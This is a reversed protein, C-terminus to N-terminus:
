WRYLNCNLRTAAAFALYSCVLADVAILQTIAETFSSSSELRTLTTKLSNGWLHLWSKISARSSDTALPASSLARMADPALFHAMATRDCEAIWSSHVVYVSLAAEGEAFDSVISLADVANEDLAADLESARDQAQLAREAIEECYNLKEVLSQRQKENLSKYADSELLASPLAISTSQNM